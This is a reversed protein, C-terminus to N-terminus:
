MAKALLRAVASQTDSLAMEVPPPDAVLGALQLKWNTKALQVLAPHFFSESGQFSVARVACKDWLLQDFGKLKLRPKRETLLWWLDFYTRAVPMSTRGKEVTQRTWQLLARLKEAVIEELSYVAISATLPEDFAHILKRQKPAAIIKEDLSVEVAVVTPETRWPFTCSFDYAALPVPPATTFCHECCSVSTAGRSGLITRLRNVAEQMGKSLAAAPIDTLTSYDLDKSRRSQEFYCKRLANAGKLVLQGRLLPVEALAKAILSCLYDIEHVDNPIAPVTQMALALAPYPRKTSLTM